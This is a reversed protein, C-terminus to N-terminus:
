SPTGREEKIKKLEDQVYSKAMLGLEKSQEKVEEVSKLEKDSHITLGIKVSVYNGVIVNEEYSKSIKISM